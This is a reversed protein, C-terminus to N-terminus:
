KQRNLWESVEERYDEILVAGGDCIELVVDDLIAFFIENVKEALSEEPLASRRVTEKKETEDATEDATDDATEDINEDVEPEEADDKSEDASDEVADGMGKSVTKDDSACGAVSAVLGLTLLMVLIRKKM